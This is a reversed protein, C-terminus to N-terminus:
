CPPWAKTLLPLESRRTDGVWFTLQKGLDSDVVLSVEGDSVNKVGFSRVRRHTEQTGDVYTSPLHIWGSPVDVAQILVSPSSTRSASTASSLTTSASSPPGSTQETRNEPRGIPIPRARGSISSQLALPEAIAFEDTNEEDEEKGEASNRRVHDGASDPHIYGEALDILGKVGAEVLGGVSHVIGAM